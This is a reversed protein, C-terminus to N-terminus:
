RKVGVSEGLQVKTEIDKKSNEMIKKDITVIDNKILLVITSGGFEFYGKEEGKKFEEKNYNKIKGVTLAGVEIQVVDDFNETHLVAYERSNESFVKYNDFAIPRVTHLVGKIKVSKNSIGNDLYCYRHYDDVTLRYVLCLGDKYQESLTQNKILESVNYISNKIRIKLDESIKYVLMKADAVAILKKPNYDVPRCETKIRRIFFDNFSKYNDEEYEEM